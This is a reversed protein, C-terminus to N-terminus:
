NLSPDPPMDSYISYHEGFHQIVEGWVQTANIDFVLDPRAPMTLWSGMEMENELQGPAWGSYGLYARFSEDQDPGELMRELTEMNGGLYVGDLVPHTGEVEQHLRYLILLSNKQVPGGSFIRHAQGELVPVQPLVETINMETPRNIVIGLAGDPGHECILVVTQSFNPDRLAPTAILFIGKSLPTNM